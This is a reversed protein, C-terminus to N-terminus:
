VGDCFTKASGVYIVGRQGKKVRVVADLEALSTKGDDDYLIRMQPVQVIYLCFGHRSEQLRGIAFEDCCYLIIMSNQTLNSYM